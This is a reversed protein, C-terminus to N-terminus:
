GGRGYKAFIAKWDAMLGKTMMRMNEERHVMQRANQRAQEAGAEGMGSTNQVREAIPLRM